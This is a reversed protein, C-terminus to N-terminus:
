EAIEGRFAQIAEQLRGKSRLHEGLLQAAYERDRPGVTPDRLFRRLETEGRVDDGSLLLSRALGLM